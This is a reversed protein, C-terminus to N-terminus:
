GGRPRDSGATNSIKCVCRRDKRRREEGRRRKGRSIGWTNRSERVAVITHAESRIPTAFTPSLELEVM